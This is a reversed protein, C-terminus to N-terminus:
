ETETVSLSSALWHEYIRCHRNVNINLRKREKEKPILHVHVCLKQSIKDNEENCRFRFPLRYVAFDELTTMYM